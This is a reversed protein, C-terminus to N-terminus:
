SSPSLRRGMSLPYLGRQLLSFFGGFTSTLWMLEHNGTVYYFSGSQGQAEGPDEESGTWHSEGNSGMGKMMVEAQAFEYSFSRESSVDSYADLEAELRETSLCTKMAAASGDEDEGGAHVM